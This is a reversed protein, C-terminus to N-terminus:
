YRRFPLYIIYFRRKIADALNQDESFIEEIKYNSTIIFNDPRICMSHGKSEAVFSYRDAWIKLLHGLAKCDFDDLIVNKEGQYGDWWKNQPKFYCDKGYQERAFYSKGVGPPGYIWIGCCAVLDEPKKMHDRAIHKLTNYYRVYVDGDIDDIKGTKALNKVKEWDTKDNRKFPLEGLEFQTNPVRSEEKWVYENAASSKTPEAHCSNGFVAKVAALRVARKFVALLQWHHFGTNAGIEEQGRLYVINSPLVEFKRWDNKKITLLWYRAQESRTM